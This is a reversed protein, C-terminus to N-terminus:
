RSRKMNKISSQSVPAIQAFKTYFSSAGLTKLQPYLVGFRKNMENVLGIVQSRAPNTQPMVKSVNNDGSEFLAILNIADNSDARNILSRIKSLAEGFPKTGLEARVNILDQDSIDSKLDVQMALAIFFLSVVIKKFSIM